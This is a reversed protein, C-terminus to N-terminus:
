PGVDDDTPTAPPSFVLTDATWKQIVAESEIARSWLDNDVKTRVHHDLAERIKAKEDKTFNRFLQPNLMACYFIKYYPLLKNFLEPDRHVRVANCGEGPVYCFYDCWMRGTTELQLNIQPLYYIPVTAHVRGGAKYYYPCKIEVMGHQGILGDPSAALWNYTQHQWLGTETVTYGTIESYRRIAEPELATGWETAANRVFESEGRARRLAEARSTWSVLGLAGGLQSGTLKGKRAEYWAPTRQVLATTMALLLIGM